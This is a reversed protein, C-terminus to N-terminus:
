VKHLAACADVLAAALLIWLGPRPEMSLALFRAPGKGEFAEASNFVRPLQCCLVLAAAAFVEAACLASCAEHLQACAAQRARRMPSFWLAFGALARALPLAAVCLATWAALGLHSAGLQAVAGAVSYSASAASPFSSSGFAKLTLFLSIHSLSLFSFM